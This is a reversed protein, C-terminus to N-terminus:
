RTIYFEVYTMFSDRYIIDIGPLILKVAKASVKEGKIRKSFVERYNNYIFEYIENRYYKGLVAKLSRELTELIDPQAFTGNGTCEDRCDEEFLASISLVAPSVMEASASADILFYFYGNLNAAYNSDKALIYASTQTGPDLLITTSFHSSGSLVSELRPVTTRFFEATRVITDRSRAPEIDVAAYEGTNGGPSSIDASRAIASLSISESASSSFDITSLVVSESAVSLVSGSPEPNDSAAASVPDPREAGSPDGFHFIIISPIALIALFAPIAISLLVPLNSRFLNSSVKM